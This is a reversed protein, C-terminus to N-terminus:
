IYILKSDCECIAHINLMNIKNIDDIVELELEM